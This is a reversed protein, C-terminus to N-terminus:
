RVPPAPSPGAPSPKRLAGSLAGGISRFGTGEWGPMQQAQPLIVSEPTGAYKARDVCRLRQKAFPRANVAADKRVQETQLPRPPSM